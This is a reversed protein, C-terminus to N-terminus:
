NKFNFNYKVSLHNPKKSMNKKSGKQFNSMKKKQDLDQYNKIFNKSTDPSNDGNWIEDDGLM